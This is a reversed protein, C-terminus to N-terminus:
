ENIKSFYLLLLLILLLLSSNTTTQSCNNKDSFPQLKHFISAVFSRPNQCRSDLAQVGSEINWRTMIYQGGQLYTSRDRTKTKYRNM